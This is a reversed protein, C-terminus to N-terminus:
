QVAGASSAEDLLLEPLSPAVHISPLQEPYGKRIDVDILLVRKGLQAMVTVLDSSISSKGAEPVAGTIMLADNRADLVSFYINTHLVRTAETATDTADENASLHSSRGNSSTLM